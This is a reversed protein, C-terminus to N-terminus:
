GLGELRYFDAKLKQITGIPLAKPVLGKPLHDRLINLADLLTGKQYNKDLTFKGGTSDAASLLCFVLERLMQDKIMASARWRPPLWGMPPLPSPRGIASSFVMALNVITMTLDHIKGREFQVMESSMINDVWERDQQNLRYVEKQLTQAAKAARVLAPGPKLSVARRDRKWLSALSESIRECFSDRDDTPVRALAALRLAVNGPLEPPDDIPPKPV